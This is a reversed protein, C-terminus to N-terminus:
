QILIARVFAERSVRYDAHGGPMNARVHAERGDVSILMATRPEQHMTFVQLMRGQVQSLQEWGLRQGPAVTPAAQPLSSAYQSAPQKVTQVGANVTSVTVPAPAETVAGVAPASGGNEKTMAAFTAGGAADLPRPTTGRWQVAVETGGHEIKGQMRLM